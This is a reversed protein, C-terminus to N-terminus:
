NNKKFFDNEKFDSFDQNKGFKKINELFENRFKFYVFVMALLYAGSFFCIFFSINYLRRDPEGFKGGPTIFDEELLNHFGSLLLYFTTNNFINYVMLCINLFFNKYLEFNDKPGGESNEHPGGKSNKNKDNKGNEFNEHPGGQSNEKPGGKSIEDKTYFFIFITFGLFCTLFFAFIFYVIGILYPLLLVWTWNSYHFPNSFKLLIYFIQFSEFFNYISLSSNESYCKKINTYFIVGIHFIGFYPLFNKQIFNTLFFYFIIYLILFSLNEFNDFKLNEYDIFNKKKKFIYSFYIIKLISCFSLILFLNSIEFNKSKYIQMITISIIIKSLLNSSVTIIEHIELFSIDSKTLNQPKKKKPKQIKKILSTKKKKEESSLDFM